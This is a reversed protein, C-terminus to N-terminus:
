VAAAGGDVPLIVGTIWRAEDSVLFLAARAVEIPMGHGLPTAQALPHAAVDGMMRQVRESAVVGPAVANVRIRHEALEQALSKTLTLVGGKAATYADAGQTAKMARISTTNLIAGGGREILHPIAFRCTLFSGYLDVGLTRWFEELPIDTVKGDDQTAGGANNYVIDLGGFAAVCQTVAAQADDPEAIDTAVFMARGGKAEIEAVVDSGAEVDRDAVLVAAGEEAFLLASARGIGWAAGTILAVKDELRAM